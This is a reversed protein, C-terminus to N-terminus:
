ESDVTTIRINKIGSEPYNVNLSHPNENSIVNWDGNIDLEEFSSFNQGTAFTKATIEFIDLINAVKIETKGTANEAIPNGNCLVDYDSNDSTIFLSYKKKHILNNEYFDFLFMIPSFFFLFASRKENKM